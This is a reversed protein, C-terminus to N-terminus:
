LQMELYEELSMTERFGNRWSDIAMMLWRSGYYRHVTTGNIIISKKVFNSGLRSALKDLQSAISAPLRNAAHHPTTLFDKLQQDLNSATMQM